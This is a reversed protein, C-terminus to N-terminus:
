KTDVKYLNYVFNFISSQYFILLQYQKTQLHYMQLFKFKVLVQLLIQCYIVNGLENWYYSQWNWM